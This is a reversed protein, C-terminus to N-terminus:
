RAIIPKPLRRLRDRTELNLRGYHIGEEPTAQTAEKFDRGACFAPGAGALVLVRISEDNEVEDLAALMETFFRVTLANRQEPRNFTITAIAGARELLITTYPASKPPAANDMQMDAM